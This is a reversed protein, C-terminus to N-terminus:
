RERELFQRCEALIEKSMTGRLYSDAFPLLERIWQLAEDRDAQLCQPCLDGYCKSCVYLGEPNTCNASQCSGYIPENCFPCDDPITIDIM